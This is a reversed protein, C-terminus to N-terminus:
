SNTETAVFGGQGVTGSADTWSLCDSVPEYIHQRLYIDIPLKGLLCIAVSVPAKSTPSETVHLFFAITTVSDVGPTGFPVIWCHTTSGSWSSRPSDTQLYTGSATQIRWTWNGSAEAQASEAWVLAKDTIELEYFSWVLWGWQAIM